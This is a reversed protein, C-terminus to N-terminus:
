SSQNKLRHMIHTQEDRSTLWCPM